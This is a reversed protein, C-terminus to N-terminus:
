EGYGPPATFGGVERSLLEAFTITTADEWFPGMIQIGVPLGDATRGIPAVTAPCGTLTAPAIWNLMDGYRRPGSSTAIKREEQPESHDHPFAATFAVPSLFVDIQDFWSQWQARFGLRRLNQTQWDAFSSLAAPRQGDVANNFTKRQREQEEPPAVSYLFADLHFSYNALLKSPELEPPWGPKL